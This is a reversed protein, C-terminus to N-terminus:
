FRMNAFTCFIMEANLKADNIALRIVKLDLRVKEL